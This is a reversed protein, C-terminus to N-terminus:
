KPLNSIYYNVIDDSGNFEIALYWRQGDTRKPGTSPDIQATSADCNVYGLRYGKKSSVIKALDTGFIEDATHVKVPGFTQIIGEDIARLCVNLREEKSRASQYLRRLEENNVNVNADTRRSGGKHINSLYYNLISGASDYEVALYSGVYAVSDNLKGPVQPISAQEAFLLSKRKVRETAVPMESEFNTSFIKDIVAVNKGVGILGDDITRLCVARKEQESKADSYAKQYVLYPESSTTAEPTSSPTKNSRAGSSCSMSGVVCLLLASLIQKM